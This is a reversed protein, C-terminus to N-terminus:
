NSIKIEVLRNRQERQGDPTTVPPLKEGLADVTIIKAPVGARKLRDAVARVRQMSLLDNYKDAGARDAHGILTVDKAGIRKAADIADAVVQQSPAALRDSDFDFYVTFKESLRKPPPPPEPARAAVKVPPPRMGADVKTMSDMFGARCSAIDKPQFNEEQEQMWCDFMAQARATDAPMKERAGTSLATVLRARADTLEGVAGKPLNRRVIPEPDIATGGAALIARRGFRDSDGYDGESYETKSLKLFESHLSKTFPSGTAKTGEAKTLQTGECGVLFVVALGVVLPTASGKM